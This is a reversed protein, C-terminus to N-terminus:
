GAAQWAALERAHMAEHQRKGARSGNAAGVVVVALAIPALHFGTIHSRTAEDYFLGWIPAGIAMGLTYASGAVSWLKGFNRPGMALYLAMIQAAAHVIGLLQLLEHLLPALLRM